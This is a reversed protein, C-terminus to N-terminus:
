QIEKRWSNIISLIYERSYRAHGKPTRFIPVLKGSEEMRKVTMYSINLMKAVESPKIVKDQNETTMKVRRHQLNSIVNYKKKNKFEERKIYFFRYELMKTM